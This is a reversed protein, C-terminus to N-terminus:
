LHLYLSLLLRAFVFVCVVVKGACVSGSCACVFKERGCVSENARGKRGCRCVCVGLSACNKKKLVTHIEREEGASVGQLEIHDGCLLKEAQGLLHMVKLGENVDGGGICVAIALVNILDDVRRGYLGLFEYVGKLSHIINKNVLTVSISASPTLGHSTSILGLSFSFNYIQAVAAVLLSVAVRGGM